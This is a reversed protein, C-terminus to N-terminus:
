RSRKVGTHGIVKGGETVAQRKNSSNREFLCALSALNQCRRPFSTWMHSFPLCFCLIKMTEVQHRAVSALIYIILTILM